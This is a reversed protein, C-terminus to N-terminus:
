LIRNLNQLQFNFYYRKTSNIISLGALLAAFNYHDVRRRNITVTVERQLNRKGLCYFTDRIQRSPRPRSQKINTNANPTNM